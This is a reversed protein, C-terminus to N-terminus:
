KRRAPQIFDPYLNQLILVPGAQRIIRVLGRRYLNDAEANSVPYLHGEHFVEARQPREPLPMPLTQTKM